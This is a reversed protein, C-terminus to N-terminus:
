YCSILLIDAVTYDELLTSCSRPAFQSAFNDYMLDM